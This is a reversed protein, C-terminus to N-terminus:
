ARGTGGAPASRPLAPAAGGPLARAMEKRVVRAMAQSFEAMHRRVQAFGAGREGTVEDMYLARNIEIQLSFRRLHPAGHVRVIDAGGYPENIAVRYGLGAFFTGVWTTMGAPATTGHRDGLVLDPRLAGRRRGAAAGRSKMSHCNFHWVAGHRRWQEDLAARLAQRYPLYYRNIRRRVETVTLRRTYLPVGPGALRRILGMGRRSHDSLEVPGPWPSALVDPDVDEVARNADIYARPFRAVLLAAGAAPVDQCLEDVYADWTGRLAALSAAPAFDPPFDFSSHPSDFVVPLAAPGPPVLRFVEPDSRLSM